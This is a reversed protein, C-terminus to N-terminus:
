VAGVTYRNVNTVNDRGKVSLERALALGEVTLCVWGYGHVVLGRDALRKFARAVSARAANYRAKGIRAESFRLHQGWRVPSRHEPEFGFARELVECAWVDPGLAEWRRVEWTVYADYGHERLTREYRYAREADNAYVGPQLAFIANGIGGEWRGVEKPWGLRRFAGDTWHVSPYGVWMDFADPVVRRVEERFAANHEDSVWQYVVRVSWDVRCRREPEEAQGEDADLRERGMELIVRQLDSLGRGM